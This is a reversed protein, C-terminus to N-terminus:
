RGESADVTPAYTSGQPPHALPSTVIDMKSEDMLRSPDVVCPEPAQFVFKMESLTGFIENTRNLPSNMTISLRVKEVEEETGSGLLQINAHAPAPRKRIRRRRLRRYDPGAAVPESNGKKIKDLGRNQSGAAVRNM